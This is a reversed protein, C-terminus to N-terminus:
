EYYKYEDNYAAAKDRDNSKIESLYAQYARLAKMYDDKTACGNSYMQKIQKLSNNDGSGVAIMYHKLARGYNGANIESCGLNHRANEDGVMAALETYHIAKKEDREVGYGHQYAYGIKTYSRAFGLEAAQQWLKLAKYNDQPLGRIGKSYSCGLEYIAHADGVKMRKKVRKVADEYLTPAPARCFSCIPIVQSVTRMQEVAHICGSCIVKGCCAQYRKGWHLSPLTLFCIPCEEKQPPQKFLAEDHLEAARKRCEKKHQLRHAKQCAASCYRVSMCAGCKKLHGSEEEGKGCNACTSLLLEDNDDLSM